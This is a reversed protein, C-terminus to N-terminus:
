LRELVDLAVIGRSGVAGGRGLRDIDMVFVAHDKSDSVADLLAQAQSLKVRGIELAGTNTDAVNALAELAAAHDGEAVLRDSQYFWSNEIAKRGEDGGALAYEARAGEFDFEPIFSESASLVKIINM